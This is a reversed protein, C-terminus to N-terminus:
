FEFPRIRPQAEALAEELEALLLDREEGEIVASTKRAGDLLSQLYPCRTQTVV